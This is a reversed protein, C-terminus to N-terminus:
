ILVSQSIGQQNYKKININSLHPKPKVSLFNLANHSTDMDKHAITDAYNLDRM